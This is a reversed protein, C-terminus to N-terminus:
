SRLRETMRDFFGGWGSKAHEYAAPRMRGVQRLHMETRDDGLDTLVVTVLEHGGDGPEDSLNLVM